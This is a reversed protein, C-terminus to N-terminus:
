IQCFFLSINAGISIYPVLKFVVVCFTQSVYTNSIHSLFCFLVFDYYSVAIREVVFSSVYNGLESLFPFVHLCMVFVASLLATPSDYNLFPKRKSMKLKLHQFSIDYLEVRMTLKFKRLLMLLYHIYNLINVLAISPVYYIRYFFM